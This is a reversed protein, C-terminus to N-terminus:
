HCQDECSCNKNSKAKEFCEKGEKFSFYALSLSGISDIYVFGSLEFILSSALLIISMYICVKTCVADAIIANSNLQKGVSTKAKVLACMVLISVVSIILGWFTTEPKHGTWFNYVSMVALSGVLVYFAIGTIHLSTREFPERLSGPKSQIRLVMYAIGIGSVVEIFSDVGFGFLTLSEDELGFFTSVVGEALNYLITFIALGLALRYLGPRDLQVTSSAEM